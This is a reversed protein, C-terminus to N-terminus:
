CAQITQLDYSKIVKKLLFKWKKLVLAKRKQNYKKMKRSIMEVDVTKLLQELHEFSHFYQIYPMNEKDYFDAHDIWFKIVNPDSLNNPDGLTTPPPIFHFLHFYSVENLIEQSKKRLQALFTKSPFFLPVNASYEEFISMTSIQYPFHIIGKYDYLDQWNYPRTLDNSIMKIYKKQVYDAFQSNRVSPQCIFSKKKGSYHANTYQCLSPIVEGKIGTYYELYKQDGKNNAVIFLKNRNVGEILFNDLWSKLEPKDTFPIEYRVANIIIIPKNTKEYFLAFSANYAAIYGDFQDLFDKYKEYFQQYIKQDSSYLWSFYDVIEVPDHEYGLTWRSNSVGSTPVIWIVVEHGLEEFISKVDASVSGHFDLCFFRLKKKPIKQLDSAFLFSFIFFLSMFGFVKKM